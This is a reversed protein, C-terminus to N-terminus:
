LKWPCTDYPTRPTYKRPFTELSGRHLANHTFHSVSILYNPDLLLDTENRFDDIELPNLHHVSIHGDILHEPLKVGLDYGEDRVIVYDRVALWDASHYFEQNLFRKSGFKIEGVPARVCAYKFREEFTPLRILEKYTKLNRMMLDRMAMTAGSQM